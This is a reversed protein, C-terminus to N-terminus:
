IGIGFKDMDEAVSKDVPGRVQLGTLYKRISGGLKTMEEIIWIGKYSILDNLTGDDIGTLKLGEMFNVGEPHGRSLQELKLLLASASLSQDFRLDAYKTFDGTNFQTIITFGTYKLKILDEKSVTLNILVLEHTPEAYWIEDALVGGTIEYSQPYELTRAFLRAALDDGNYIVTNYHPSSYYISKTCEANIAETM